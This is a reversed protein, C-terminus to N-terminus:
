QTREKERKTSSLRSDIARYIDPRLNRLGPPEPNDRSKSVLGFDLDACVIEEGVTAAEAMVGDNVGFTKDVPCAVLARGTGFIAGDAPIGCTGILPAMVVFLQNEIARALSCTRVRSAGRRNWTLSPCLVLQVGRLALIRTVEPFEIDACIQIATRIGDIEFITVDDGASMGIAIEAPTLHLKDQAIVDGSPCALYATNLYRGDEARRYHSGGLLYVGLTRAKASVTGVFEGAFAPFVARYATALTAKGLAAAAPHSAILGTTALEPLVILRAGQAAAASVVADLHARFDEFSREPRLLFQVAAVRLVSM